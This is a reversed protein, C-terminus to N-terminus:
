HKNSRHMFPNIDFGCRGSACNPHFLKQLIIKIDLYSNEYFVWWNENYRLRGAAKSPPNEIPIGFFLSAMKEVSLIWFSFLQFIARIFHQLIFNETYVVVERILIKELPASSMPIRSSNQFIEVTMQQRRESNKLFELMIKTLIRLSNKFYM